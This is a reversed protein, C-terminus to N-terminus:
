KKSCSVLLTKVKNSVDQYAIWEEETSMAKVNEGRYKGNIAIKYLYNVMSIYRQRIASQEPGPKLGLSKYIIELYDNTLEKKKLGYMAVAHKRINEKDVLQKAEELVKAQDEPSLDEFSVM